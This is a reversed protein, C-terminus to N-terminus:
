ACSAKNNNYVESVCEFQEMAYAAAAEAAEILEPRDAFVDRLAAEAEAARSAYNEAAYQAGVIAQEIVDQLCCPISMRRSLFRDANNACHGCFVSADVCGKGHMASFLRKAFTATEAVCGSDCFNSAAETLADFAARADAIVSDDVNEMVFSEIAELSTFREMASNILRGTITDDNSAGYAALAAEAQTKYMETARDIVGQVFDADAAACGSVAAFIENYCTEVHACATNGLHAIDNVGRRLMDYTVVDVDAYKEAAKLGYCAGQYFLASCSESDLLASFANGNPYCDGM